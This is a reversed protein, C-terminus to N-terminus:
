GSPGDELIVRGPANPDQFQIELVAFGRKPMTCLDFPQVGEVLADTERHRLVVRINLMCNMKRPRPTWVAKNSHLSFGQFQNAGWAVQGAPDRKGDNIYFQAVDYVPSKNIVIICGQGGCQDAEFHAPPMGGYMGMQVGMPRLDQAMPLHSDPDGGRMQAQATAPIAIAALTALIGLRNRM